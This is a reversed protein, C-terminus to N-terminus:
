IMQFIIGNIVLSIVFNWIGFELNWIGFGWDGIGFGWDYIGLRLDGITFGWDLERYLIIDSNNIL